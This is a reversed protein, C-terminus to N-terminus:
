LGTAEKISKLEDETLERLDGPNSGDLTINGLQIRRLEEVSRNWHAIIRRVEHTKGEYLTLECTNNDKLTLVCPKLKIKEDTDELTIGESAEKIHENTLEDGSYTVKYVKPINYKPSTLRHSLEGDNTIILLGSTHYDLRGVPSLKKNKLNSPIFDAVTPLRKDEMATLVEDPKDFVYYLKDKVQTEQGMISISDSENIKFGADKIATNNVFVKGKRILEKIESRTGYGSNSLAKDLRMLYNYLLLTTYHMYIRNM